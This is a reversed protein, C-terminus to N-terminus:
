TRRPTVTYSHSEMLCFRLTSATSFAFRLLAVQFRLSWRCGCYCRLEFNSPNRVGQHKTKCPCAPCPKTKTRFMVAFVRCISNSRTWYWTVKKLRRVILVVYCPFGTPSQCDQLNCIVYVSDKGYFSSSCISCHGKPTWRTGKTAAM